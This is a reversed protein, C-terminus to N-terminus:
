LHDPAPGTLPDEKLGLLVREIEEAILVRFREGTSPSLGFTGVFEAATRAPMAGLKTRVADAHQRWVARAEDAELLAEREKILRGRMLRCQLHLRRARLDAVSERHGPVIPAAAGDGTPPRLLTQPQNAAAWCRCAVEDYLPWTPRSPHTGCSPMGLGAWRRVTEGTVGLRTALEEGTLPQGGGAAAPMAAATRVRKELAGIRRSLMAM